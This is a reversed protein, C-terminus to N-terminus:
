KKKGVRKGAAATAGQWQAATSLAGPTRAQADVNYATTFVPRIDVPIGNLRDLATQLEPRLTGTALLKQAGAYDGTAELTLLDHALDRVATKMKAVDVAYTGDPRAVLAGHDAYFNFQVAMGKGHAEGIGFRLARFASALYTTYLRREAIQKSPAPLGSQGKDILYQLAWLGTVDAKAEEIASFLEKLELRPNSTRGEATIEHPGLGHMLEHMLIHTFFSDFDVDKQEDRALLRRSIPLLVKQFKADQVNKLMIRKSGKEKVVVDDNPLNYAATQVAQDGEGGGYIEDVVRIPSLGGLKASRYQPDEPLNNELEQLHASYGALKATEKDDRLSIYAEFAAKYNFLEDSYTEYPGITVDLPADLDMWAVDSDRYNNSLFADARASLFKKLSANTTEAAAEKLLKAAKELDAKYAESYPVITLGGQPSRRIVTFFGTAQEQQETPLTKVWANFEDKTMNEPYYNAGPLKAPPVGPLFAKDGDLASWPGKNCWFYELRAVGLPSTDKQLREYTALNGSWYQELFIHDVVRAAAILKALARRDGASLGSVDVRYATPAFRAMMTRLQPLDPPAAPSSAEQGGCLVALSFVLFLLLALRRM